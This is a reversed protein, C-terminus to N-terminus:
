YKTVFGANRRVQALRRPMSDICNDIISQPMKNWLEQAAAFLDDPNTPRRPLRVLKRKLWSWCNEIPNLDPSNPPHYLYKFRQREGQSRNTSSTHIKAGDEVIRAGGYARYNSNVRNWAQKLPGKTIQDRYIVSTVGQKKGASAATDFRHLQTRGGYWIAAWVMFSKKDSLMKSVMCEALYAQGVERTVWQKFSGNMRVSAEDTYITRRNDWISEDKRQFAYKRRQHKAKVTLFPKTRAVCRKLGLKKMIRCLSSLSIHIDSLTLLQVIQERTLFRHVRLTRRILNLARPTIRSPRGPSKMTYSHAREQRNKVMRAVTSKSCGFRRAVVSYPSTLAAEVITARKSPSYHVGTM